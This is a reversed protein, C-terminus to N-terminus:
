GCVIETLAIVFGREFAGLVGDGGIGLHRLGQAAGSDAACQKVILFAVLFVVTLSDCVAIVAVLDLVCDFTQVRICLLIRVAIVRYPNKM